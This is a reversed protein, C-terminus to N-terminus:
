NIVDYTDLEKLGDHEEKYSDPWIRYDPSDKPFKM